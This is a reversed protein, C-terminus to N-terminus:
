SKRTELNALEVCSECKCAGCEVCIPTPDQLPTREHMTTGTEKRCRRCNTPM